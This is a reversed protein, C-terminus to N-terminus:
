KIFSAQKQYSFHCHPSFSNSSVLLFSLFSLKLITGRIKHKGYYWSIKQFFFVNPFSSQLKATSILLSETSEMHVDNFAQEWVGLQTAAVFTHQGKDANGLCLWRHSKNLKMKFNIHKCKYWNVIDSCSKM